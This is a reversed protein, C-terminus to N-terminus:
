CFTEKEAICGERERRLSYGIIDPSCRSEGALKASSGEGAGLDCDKHSMVVVEKPRKMVVKRSLSLVMLPRSLIIDPRSVRPLCPHKHLAGSLGARAGNSQDALLRTSPSRM